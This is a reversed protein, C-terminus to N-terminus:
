VLRDGTWVKGGATRRVHPRRHPGDEDRDASRWGLPSLLNRGLDVARCSSEGDREGLQIAAARAPMSWTSLQHDSGKSGSRDGEVVEVYGGRDGCDRDLEDAVGLDHAAQVASHALV